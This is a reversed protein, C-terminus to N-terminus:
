KLLLFLVFVEKGARKTKEITVYKNMQNLFNQDNGDVWTYVVDIPQSLCPVPSVPGPETSVPGPETSVPGGAMGPHNPMSMLIVIILSLTCAARCAYRMKSSDRPFLKMKEDSVVDSSCSFCWFLLHCDTSLSAVVVSPARYTLDLHRWFWSEM